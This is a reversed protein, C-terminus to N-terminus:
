RTRVSGCGCYDRENGCNGCIDGMVSERWTIAVALAAWEDAKVGYLPGPNISSGVAREKGGFKDILAQRINTDKARRSGCLHLKVASRPLREARFGRLTWAQHFRGAWWVTDFVEAGVAMGFSEVQEVVLTPRVAFRETVVYALVFGNSVRQHELVQRGDWLVFASQESGPDVALVVGTDTM